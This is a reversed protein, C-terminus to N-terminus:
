VRLRALAALKERVDIRVNRPLDLRVHTVGELPVEDLAVGALSGYMQPADRISQVMVVYTDAHGAGAWGPPFGLISM